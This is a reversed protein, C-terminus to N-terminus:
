DNTAGAQDNIAECLRQFETLQVSALAVVHHLMHDFVKAINETQECYTRSTLVILVTAVEGPAMPPLSVSGAEIAGGSTRRKIEAALTEDLWRCFNPLAIGHRVELSGSWGCLEAIEHDSCKPLSMPLQPLMSEM